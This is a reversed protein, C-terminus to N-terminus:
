KHCVPLGFDMIGGVIPDVGKWYSFPSILLYIVLLLAVFEPEKDSEKM